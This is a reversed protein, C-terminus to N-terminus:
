TERGPGRDCEVVVAVDLAAAAETTLTGLDPLAAARYRVVRAREVATGAPRRDRGTRGADREVDVVRGPEDPAAATAATATADREGATGRVTVAATAAT